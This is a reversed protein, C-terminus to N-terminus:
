SGLWRQLMLSQIKCWSDSVRESLLHLTTHSCRHHISHLPPSTHASPYLFAWIRMKWLLHRVRRLAPLSFTVVAWVISVVNWRSCLSCVGEWWQDEPRSKVLSDLYALFQAPHHRCLQAIDSPSISPYFKIFARLASEGFRDYLRYKFVSCM